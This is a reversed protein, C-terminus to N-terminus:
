VGLVAAAAVVMTAARVSVFDEAGVKGGKAEGDPMLPPMLPSTLIERKDM